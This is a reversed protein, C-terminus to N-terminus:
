RLGSILVAVLVIVLVAIVAYLAIRQIDYLMSDGRVEDGFGILSLTHPKKNFHYDVETVPTGRIILEAAIIRTDNGADKVANELVEQLPVVQRWRTDYPDIKGKFVEQAQTELTMKHLGSIDDENTYLRGRRSWTFTKEQLLQGTGECRKCTLTTYGRCTPCNEETTEARTSGDAQKAKKTKTVTGKGNCTSCPMTTKGACDGCTVMKQSGTVVITEPRADVFADLEPVAVDWRDLERSSTPATGIHIQERTKPETRTEYHARLEYLYVNYSVIQEPEVIEGLAPRRLAGKRSWRDLERRLAGARHLKDARGRSKVIFEQDIKDGVTNELPNELWEATAEWRSEEMDDTSADIQSRLAQRLAAAAQSANGYRAAPDAALMRRLVRDVAALNQDRSALLALDKGSPPPVDGLLMHYLVAGLSYLDQAPKGTADRLNQEPASYPTQLDTSQISSFDPSGEAVALSFNTLFASGQPTVLINVPQVDRHIVQEAHLYDLAAGIQTVIRLALLPEVPGKALLEELPREEMRPTVIYDGYHDDHGADIVPLINPHSLRAALRAALHFRSSSIWDTRRLVHVRVPRDLTQHTARYVTSLEEMAIRDTLRYNSFERAENQSQGKPSGAAARSRANPAAM